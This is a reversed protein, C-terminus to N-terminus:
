FTSHNWGWNQRESDTMSIYVRGGDIGLQENILTCLADSFAQRDGPLGLARYDLIATPADSGGFLMNAKQEVAVMVYSEPKGSIKSVTQSALKLLSAEDKVEQNTVINLYPM